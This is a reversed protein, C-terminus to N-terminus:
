GPLIRKPRIKSFIKEKLEPNQRYFEAAERISNFKVGPAPDPEQEEQEEQQPLLSYDFNAKFCEDFLRVLAERSIGAGEDTETPFVRVDNAKNQANMWEKLKYRTAPPMSRKQCFEVALEECPWVFEIGASNTSSFIPRRKRSAISSVCYKLRNTAPQKVVYQIDKDM